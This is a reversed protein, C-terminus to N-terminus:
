RRRRRKGVAARANVVVVAYVGLAFVVGIVAGAMVSGTVFYFIAAIMIALMVLM